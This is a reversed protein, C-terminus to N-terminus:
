YQSEKDVVNELAEGRDFRKLNEIFFTMAREHSDATHDASHPSLLVNDLSWLPSEQPLPESTFVDLAAGRIRKQVLAETLAREDVIRGRGINILIADSRMLDIRSRNVLGTTAPTLPASIVVYHSLSMLEEISPDGAEPRRRLGLVRMGLAEARTGVAKGISGYGIIGVRRGEIREVEFPEWTKARQADTLRRLDKAFWLMAAIAFEALAGAYLGRSNTVLVDSRRLLDFPLSEVGAGLAHIWRVSKMDHWLESLLGGHRPAVLVIEASRIGERLQAANAGAIISDPVTERQLQELPRFAPPALVAIRMM